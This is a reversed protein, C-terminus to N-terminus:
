QRAALVKDIADSVADKFDARPNKPANSENRESLERGKNSPYIPIDNPRESEIKKKDPMGSAKQAKALLYADKPSLSPHSRHIRAADEKFEDFDPFESRAQGVSMGSLLDILVKQMGGIQTNTESLKKEMEKTTLKATADTAKGVAEAIVAVLEKQSLPTPEGDSDRKDTKLADDLIRQLNTEEKLQEEEKKIKEAEQELLIEESANLKLQLQERLVKDQTELFQNRQELETLRDAESKKEQPKKDQNEVNKSRNKKSEEMMEAISKAM